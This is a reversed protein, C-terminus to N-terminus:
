AKSFFRGVGQDYLGVTDAGDGNWGGALPKWGLNRAGYLLANDAAGANPSNRMMFGGRAPDYLGVTNSTYATSCGYLSATLYLYLAPASLTLRGRATPRNTQSGIRRGFNRAELDMLRGGSPEDTRLLPMLYLAM